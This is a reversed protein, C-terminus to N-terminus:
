IKLITDLEFQWTKLKSQMEVRLDHESKQVKTYTEKVEEVDLDQGTKGKGIINGVKQSLTNINEVIDTSLHHQCHQSIGVKETFAVMAHGIIQQPLIEGMGVEMKVTSIQYLATEVKSIKKNLLEIKINKLAIENQRRSAVLTALFSVLAGVIVGLFGILATDM